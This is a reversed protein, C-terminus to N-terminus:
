GWGRLQPTNGQNKDSAPLVPIVGAGVTSAHLVNTILPNAVYYRKPLDAPLNEVKVSNHFKSAFENYYVDYLQKRLHEADRRAQRTNTAM